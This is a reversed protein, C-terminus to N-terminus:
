DEGHENYMESQTQRLVVKIFSEKVMAPSLGIIVFGILTSSIVTLSEVLTGQLILAPSLVFIFPLIYKSM